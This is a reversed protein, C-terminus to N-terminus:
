EEPEIGNHDNVAIRLKQKCGRYKETTQVSVVGPASETNLRV